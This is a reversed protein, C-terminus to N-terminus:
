DFFYKQISIEGGFHENPTLLYIQDDKKIRSQILHTENVVDIFLSFDAPHIQNLVDIRCM